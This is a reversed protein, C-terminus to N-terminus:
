PTNELEDTSADLRAARVRLDAAEHELRDAAARLGAAINRRNRIRREPDPTM